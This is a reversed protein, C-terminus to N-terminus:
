PNLTFVVINLSAFEADGVANLGSQHFDRIRQGPLGINEVVWFEDPDKGSKRCHELVSKPGEPGDTYIAVTGESKLLPLISDAKRSHISGIRANEWPKKLLSFARQVLTTAPHFVVADPTLDKLLRTGIGYFLPDGSALVIATGSSRVPTEFDKLRESLTKLDSRIEFREVRDPLPGSLTDLHRRGGALFRCRSFLGSFRPDDTRLGEPEMGIVHINSAYPELPKLTDM